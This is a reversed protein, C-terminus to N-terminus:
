NSFVNLLTGDELNTRLETLWTDIDQQQWNFNYHGWLKISEPSFDSILGLFEQGNIGEQAHVVHSLMDAMQVILPFAADGPVTDSRHHYGTAACLQEPFLWRNLLRMGVENHSIGFKEEEEPFFSLRLRESFDHGLLSYNHPLAMLMAIKGMDHILGAIFLQSPSYGNTHTAIIKAALACTLSHDWLADIEQKNVNRLKQFSNFVAQTLIITRIEQFGLVVIAEEISCVERPRGFFASNALKLIALCMAQDPLIAQMLEHATSEPNAVIEMVRNVTAPLAPFSDIQQFISTVPSQPMNKGSINTQM